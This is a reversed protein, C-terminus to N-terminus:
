PWLAGFFRGPLGFCDDRCRFINQDPSCSHISDILGVVQGEGCNYEDACQHAGEAPCELGEGWEKPIKERKYDM